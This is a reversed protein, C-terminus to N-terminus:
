YPVYFSLSVLASTGFTGGDCNNKNSSSDTARDGWTFYLLQNDRQDANVKEVIDLITGLNQSVIPTNTLFSTVLTVFHASKSTRINEPDAGLLQTYAPNNRAITERWYNLYPRSNKDGSCQALEDQLQASPGNGPILEDLSAKAATALAKANRWAKVIRDRLRLTLLAMSVVSQDHYEKNDENDWM